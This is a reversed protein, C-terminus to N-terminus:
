RCKQMVGGVRDIPITAGRVDCGRDRASRCDFFLEALAQFIPLRIFAMSLSSYNSQRFAPPLRVATDATTGQWKQVMM